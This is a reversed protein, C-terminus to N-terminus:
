KSEKKSVAFNELRPPWFDIVKVSARSNINQFPLTYTAGGPTKNIHSDFSLITALPTVPTLHHSCKVYKNLAIKADLKQAKPPPPCSASTQHGAGECSSSPLDNELDDSRKRKAPIDSAPKTHAAQAKKNKRRQNRLQNRSLSKVDEKRTAEGDTVATEQRNRAEIVFKESQQDFKKHYDKKRRLVDKVRDDNHFDTLM